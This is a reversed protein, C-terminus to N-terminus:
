DEHRKDLDIPKNLPNHVVLFIEKAIRIGFNIALGAGIGMIITAVVKVGGCADSTIVSTIMYLLLFTACAMIAMVVMPILSNKRVEIM